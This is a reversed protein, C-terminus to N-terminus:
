PRHELCRIRSEQDENKKKLLLYFREIQNCGESNQVQWFSKFEM